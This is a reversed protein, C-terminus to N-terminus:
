RRMKGLAIFMAGVATAIAIGFKTPDLIPDVKVGNPGISVVAVPRAMTLGGGGGGGGSGSSSESEGDDEGNPGIGMGGGYGAGFAATVESATIITYEGSTVPESYVATPKTVDFLKGLLENAREQTPVSEVILKNLEASM